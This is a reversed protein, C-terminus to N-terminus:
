CWAADILEAFTRNIITSCLFLPAGALVSPGQRKSFGRYDCPASRIERIEAKPSPRAM